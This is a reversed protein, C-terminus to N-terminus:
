LDYQGRFGLSVWHHLSTNTFDSSGSGNPQSWSQSTYQGISASVVPGIVVAPAVHIDAGLHLGALEWGKASADASVKGVTVSVNLVEYGSSAGIWPAVRADPKFTYRAMAGFRLNTGSSSCANQGAARRCLDGATSVLGLQFYGGVYWHPDIRYGADLWFPVMGSATRSLDTAGDLSADKAISGMPLAYGVRGGLSFGDPSPSDSPPADAAPPAAKQATAAEQAASAGALALISLSVSASVALKNM